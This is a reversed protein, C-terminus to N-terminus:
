PIKSILGLDLLDQWTVAADAKKGRQGTLIEIVQKTALASDHLSEPKLNPEPIGPYKAM